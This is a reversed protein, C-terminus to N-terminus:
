SDYELIRRSYQRHEVYIYKLMELNLKQILAHVQSLCLIPCALLALIPHVSFLILERGAWWRGSGEQQEREGAVVTPM